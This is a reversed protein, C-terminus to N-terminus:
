KLGRSEDDLDSYEDAEEVLLNSIDLDLAEALRIFGEELAENVEDESLDDLDLEGECLPCIHEDSEADEVETSESLQETTVEVTEDIKQVEIGAKEFACGEMLAEVFKNTVNSM